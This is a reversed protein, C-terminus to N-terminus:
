QRQKHCNEPSVLQYNDSQYRVYCGDHWWYYRFVASPNGGQFTRITAKLEGEAAIKEGAAGGIAAGSPGPAISPPGAAQQAISPLASSAFLPVAFFIVRASKAAASLKCM